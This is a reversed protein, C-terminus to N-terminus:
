VDHKQENLKGQYEEIEKNSVGLTSASFWFVGERVWHSIKGCDGCQGTVEVPHGTHIRRTPSKTTTPNAYCHQCELPYPLQDSALSVKNSKQQTAIAKVKKWFSSLM